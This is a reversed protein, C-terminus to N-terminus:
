NRGNWRRPGDYQPKKRGTAELWAAKEIEGLVVQGLSCAFRKALRKRASAAARALALEQAADTSAACQSQGSGTEDHWPSGDERLLSLVISISAAFGSPREEVFDLDQRNIATSWGDGCAADLVMRDRAADVRAKQEDHAAHVAGPQVVPPPAPPPRINALLAEIAAQEEESDALATAALQTPPQAATAHLM